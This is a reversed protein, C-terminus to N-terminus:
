KAEQIRCISKFDCFRCVKNERDELLSLNFKGQTIKKVYAPIFENCINILDENVKLLEEEDPNRSNSLHVLKEGFGNKNMRLSYIIAAAPKYNKNLEAEILIKSAYVYLPLQLSIGTEIDRKSPKKGGLKYDIVKYYDRSEDLDIRDIKGRVNVDEVTIHNYNDGDSNKFKGFELEFYKPEFGEKVKREEELFKYLISNKRNGAIGLIRERELFFFSSYLRLKEIKNEAIEFIMKEAQRFTENDCNSLIINKQNITQYFEYLISHVISGLEFSELEETPEEVAELQLIRKVFYQFPCKAYEELQSASYQKEKQEALNKKAEESLENFISGTYPSEAFADKQRLEDIMFDSKLISADIGYKLYEDSTEDLNFESLMKLLEAKSQILESFNEVSKKNMLFIRSFDTLFTSPTYEKKDDKVAFTLYLMKKVSCLAQYFHYREELIHKYDDKKFSGSFFIEPQYRTPFEGDVLGGMFIYDFNLGRIENVSTVLVGNGHREKINYRTFQLATKIQKLFYDLPYKKNLGNEQKSLYFVEDITELFVTLAKVNKEILTSNDNIIIEPLKLTFILRHLSDIFEDIKLKSNFPSLLENIKKVDEKARVYFDVPLYQNDNDLEDFKIEEIVRDISDIWNRYGSVIKLNASVRLLNSLEVGNIKIWRGTLARFINKYYFNNQLIELFNILAIIPQSESLAFRDTLNFPIGYEDFIDRVIASHDSILNFAVCISDPQIKDKYILHKIEKAILRIEEEPSLASIETINIESAKPLDKDDLLFIKERINKQYNNFVVPSTDEIENFGKAKLNEYCLDLHSFLAPNFRYYDFVVFLEIGNLNSTYNIIDIEPQTFEDFGNIIIKKIGTFQNIFRYLFEKERMNLISSYIDGIEFVNLKQCNSLYNQYINAIDGAKLEESGALQHSELIIKEPLIGNRKYESIVNKIRDLTGRPIEGQYNSFYKLESENFSKNLLVAAAADSLVKTSAFNDSQFIKTAFTGLTYLNLKTVSKQPSLSILERKLYRIKRNTPVIILLEDLKDQFIYDNLVQDLNVSQINSKSLIM